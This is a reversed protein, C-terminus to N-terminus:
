RILTAAVEPFLVARSALPKIHLIGGGATSLTRSIFQASVQQQSGNGGYGFAGHPAFLVGELELGSGGSFQHATASESWLALDEFPGTTPAIWRLSGSGGGVAIASTPSVYMMVQDLELHSQSGKSFTGNRLYVFTARGSHDTIDYRTNDIWNFSNSNQTNFRLTSPGSLVVDDDFIINGGQFRLETSIWLRCDVVWNGAPILTPSATSVNCPHGAAQYSQYGPPLGSSGVDGVLNDIHPPRLSSVPCRDIDLAAPYSGKCNFRWDVMARTLPENIRTPDPAVQGTSSCAPMSCGPSGPAVVELVGCGAGPGETVLEGPCGPVGDARIIAGTGDASIVGKSTCSGTGDSDVTIKGPRVVGTIDDVAPSVMVGGRGGGGGSVSLVNCDHRELLLLNLARGEDPQFQAAAVAHITTNVQGAGVVQGFFTTHTDDVRVAFRDCPLGDEPSVSQGTAGIAGSGMLPHTDPVPHVLTFTRSGSSAQQTVAATTSLCNNPFQNCDVGTISQGDNMETLYGVAAQCAGDGGVDYLVDAAATAASDAAVQNHARDSRAAALDIVIAAIATIFVFCLAVFILM